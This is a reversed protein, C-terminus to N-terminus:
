HFGGCKRRYCLCMGSCPKLLLIEERQQQLGVQQGNTTLHCSEMSCCRPHLAHGSSSCRSQWHLIQPRSTQLAYLCSWVRKYQKMKQTFIIKTINERVCEKSGRVPIVHKWLCNKRGVSKERRLGYPCHNWTTFYNSPQSWYRSPQQIKSLHNQEEIQRRLVSGWVKDLLM